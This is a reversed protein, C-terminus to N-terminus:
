ESISKISGINKFYRYMPKFLLYDEEFNDKNKFYSSDFTKLKQLENEVLLHKSKNPPIQKSIDKFDVDFDTETVLNAQALRAKFNEKTLTDFESTIIYKDHDHDTIIKEIDSIKANYDTKTVLSSDDPIKNEVATM